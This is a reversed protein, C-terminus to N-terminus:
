LGFIHSCNDKKALFFCKGSAIPVPGYILKFVFAFLGFLMLVTLQHKISGPRRYDPIKSFKNILTPLLSRWSKLQAELLEARFTREEEMTEYPSKRNHAQTRTVIDANLTSVRQRIEAYSAKILSRLRAGRLPQAFLLGTSSEPMPASQNEPTVLSSIQPAENAAALQNDQQVKHYLDPYKLWYNQIIQECKDILLHLHSSRAQYTAAAIPQLALDM